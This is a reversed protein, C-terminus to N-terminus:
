RGEDPKHELLKPQEATVNGIARLLTPLEELVAGMPLDFLSQPAAPIAEAADARDSQAQTDATAQVASRQAAAIADALPTGAIPASANRQGIWSWLAGFAAVIEGGNDAIVNLGQSEFAPFWKRAVMSWFLGLVVLGLGQVRKTESPSKPEPLPVPAPIPAPMPCGQLSARYLALARDAFRVRAPWNKVGAREYFHEFTEAAAKATKTLRLQRLAKAETTALEHLLFGYNAAYSDRALGQKDAWDEFSRRRGGTWQFWGYGGRSGPVTPRKENIALLGSEAAANGVIGAAQEATLHLDRILDGIVRPALNEFATAM